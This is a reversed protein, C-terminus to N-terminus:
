AAGIRYATTQYAPFPHGLRVPLASCPARGTWAYGVVIGFDRGIAHEGSRVLGCQEAARHARQEAEIMDRPTFMAMDRRTFTSQQHTIADLALHPYAIIRAGSNRAIERHLEVRDAVNLGDGETRQSPAGIESQPEL